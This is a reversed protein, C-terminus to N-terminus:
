VIGIYIYVRIIIDKFIVSSFYQSLLFNPLLLNCMTITKVQLIFLQKEDRKFKRKTGYRFLFTINGNTVIM